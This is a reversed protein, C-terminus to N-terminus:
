EAMDNQLPQETPKSRKRLFNIQKTIRITKWTGVVFCVAASVFFLAGTLFMPKSDPFLHILTGGVIGLALATRLYALYTRENALRTRDIALEDRLILEKNEFRQYPM